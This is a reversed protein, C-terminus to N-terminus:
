LLKLAVRSWPAGITHVGGQRRPNRDATLQMSPPCDHLDSMNTQVQRFIDELNVADVSMSLRHQALRKTTMGHWHIRRRLLRGRLPPMNRGRTAAYFGAVM